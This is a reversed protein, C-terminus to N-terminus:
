SSPEWSALSVLPPPHGVQAITPIVIVAGAPTTKAKPAAAAAIHIPNEIHRLLLRRLLYNIRHWM